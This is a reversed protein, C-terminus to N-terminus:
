RRPGKSATGTGVMEIADEAAKAACSTWRPLYTGADGDKRAHARAGYGGMFSAHTPNSLARFASNLLVM